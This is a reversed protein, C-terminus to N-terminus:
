GHWRPIAVSITTGKGPESVIACTGKLLSAREQMSHLGFPERGFRTQLPADLSFGRGDDAIECCTEDATFTLRVDVRGAKAHRRVNSLGEQIIRFLAIQLSPSMASPDGDIVLSATTGNRGSLDDVLAQVHGIFDGQDARRGGLDEILEYIEALGTSITERLESLGQSLADGELGELMRVQLLAASMTQAPGDHLDFGVRIREREQLNIVAHAHAFGSGRRETATGEVERTSPEDSGM